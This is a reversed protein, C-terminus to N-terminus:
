FENREFFEWELEESIEWRKSLIQFCSELHTINKKLREEEESLLKVRREADDINKRLEYFTRVEKAVDAKIDLNSFIKRGNDQIFLAVVLSNFSLEWSVDDDDYTAQPRTYKRIWMYWYLMEGSRLLKVVPPEGWCLVAPPRMVRIKWLSREKICM